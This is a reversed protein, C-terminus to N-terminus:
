QMVQVEVGVEVEVGIGVEVEVKVGVEFEVGVDVEIEVLTSSPVVDAEAQQSKNNYYPFNKCFALLLLLLPLTNNLILAALVKAQKIHHLRLM